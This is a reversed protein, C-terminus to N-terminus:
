DDEQSEQEDLQKKYLRDNLRGISAAIDDIENPDYTQESIGLQREKLQQDLQMSKLQAEQIQYEIDRMRADHAIKDQPDGADARGYIGKLKAALYVAYLAADIRREMTLGNETEGVKYSYALPSNLVNDLNLLWRQSAERARTFSECFEEFKEAWRYLTATNVVCANAMDLVGGGKKGIKEVLECFESKYKTPRGGPGKKEKELPVAKNPM